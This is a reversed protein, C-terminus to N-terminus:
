SRPLCPLATPRGPPIRHAMLLTVVGVLAVAMGVLAVAVGVLGWALTLALALALVAGAVVLAAGLGYWRMRISRPNASFWGRETVAEYLKTQTEGLAGTFSEGLKDLEVSDESAFLKGL